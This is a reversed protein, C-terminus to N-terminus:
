QQVWHTETEAMVVYERLVPRSTNLIYHTRLWIQHIFLFGGDMTVYATGLGSEPQLM